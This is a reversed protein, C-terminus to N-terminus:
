LIEGLSEDPEMRVNGVCHDVYKLGTDAAPVAPIRWAGSGPMFAGQYNKREVFLHVTDGYTHIGSLVVEGDKDKLHQPEM